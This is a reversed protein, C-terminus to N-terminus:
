KLKPLRLTLKPTSYIFADGKTYRKADKKTYQGGYVVEGVDRRGYKSAYYSLPNGCTNYAEWWDSDDESGSDYVGDEDTCKARLHDIYRSHDYDDNPRFIKGYHQAVLDVWGRFATCEMPDCRFIVFNTQTRLRPLPLDTGFHGTMEQAFNFATMFDCVNSGPDSKNTSFYLCYHINDDADMIFCVPDPCDMEDGANMTPLVAGSFRKITVYYGNNDRKRKHGSKNGM